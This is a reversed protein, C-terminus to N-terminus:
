SVDQKELRAFDYQYGLCPLCIFENPICNGMVKFHINDWKFEVPLKVLALEDSNRECIFCQEAM